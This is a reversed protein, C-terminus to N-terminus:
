KGLDRAQVDSAPTQVINLSTAAPEDAHRIRIGQVIAGTDIAAAFTASSFSLAALITSFHMKVHYIQSPTPLKTNQQLSQLPPSTTPTQKLCFLPWYKYESRAWLFIPKQSEFSSVKQLQLLNSSHSKSKAVEQM